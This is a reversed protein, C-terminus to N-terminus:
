AQDESPQRVTLLAGKSPSGRCGAFYRDWLQFYVTATCRTEGGRQRGNPRRNGRMIVSLELSVSRAAFDLPPRRV